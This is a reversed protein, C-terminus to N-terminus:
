DGEVRTGTTTYNGVKNGNVDKIISDTKGQEVKMAAARLAEAIHEPESMESNGLTIYLEFKGDEYTM